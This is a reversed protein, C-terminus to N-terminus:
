QDPWNRFGDKYNYVERFGNSILLEASKGSRGGSACYVVVPKNKDVIHIKKEFEGTLYNMGVMANDIYGDAVEDSTRVDIIQLDDKDEILQKLQQTNVNEVKTTQRVTAAQEENSGNKSQSCSVIIMLVIISLFKKM